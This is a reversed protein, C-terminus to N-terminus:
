RRAGSTSTRTRCTQNDGRMARCSIERPRPSGRTSSRTADKYLRARRGRARRHGGRGRGVARARRARRRVGGPARARRALRRRAWAHGASGRREDRRRAAPVGLAYHLLCVGTPARRRRVVRAGFLALRPRASRRATAARARAWAAACCATRRPARGCTRARHGRAAAAPAGNDGAGDARATAAARATRARCRARRRASPRRSGSSSTRPPARATRTPACGRRYAARGRADGGRGRAPTAAGRARTPSSHRWFSRRHAAPERVVFLLAVPRRARARSCARARPRTPRASSPQRWFDARAHGGRPAAGGAVLGGGGGSGAANALAPGRARSLSVARRRRPTCTSRSRPAARAARRLLSRATTTASRARADASAAIARAAASRAPPGQAARRVATASAGLAHWPLPRRCAAGTSRDALARLGRRVRLAAAARQPRRWIYLAVCALGVCALEVLARRRM